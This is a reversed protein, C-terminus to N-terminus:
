FAALVPYEEPASIVALVLGHNSQCLFAGGALDSVVDLVQSATGLGFHKM